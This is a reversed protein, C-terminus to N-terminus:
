NTTTHTMNTVDQWFPGTPGAVCDAGLFLTLATGDFVASINLLNGDTPAPDNAPLTYNLLQSLNCCLGKPFPGLLSVKGTDGKKGSGDCPQKKPCPIKRGVDVFVSINAAPWSANSSNASQTRASSQLEELVATVNPLLTSMIIIPLLALLLVPPSGTRVDM